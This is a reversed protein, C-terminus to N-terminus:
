QLTSHIAQGATGGSAAPREHTIPKIFLDFTRYPIGCAQLPKERGLRERRVALESQRRHIEGSMGALRVLITWQAASLSFGDGYKKPGNPYM